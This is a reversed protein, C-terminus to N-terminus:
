ARSYAAVTRAAAEAVGLLERHDEVEGYTVREVVLCAKHRM